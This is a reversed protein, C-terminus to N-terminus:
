YIEAMLLVVNASWGTFPRTGKGKHILGLINDSIPEDDYQEWVYGTRKWEKYVCQIVDNRIKDYLRACRQKTKVDLYRIPELNEYEDNNAYTSETEEPLNAYYYLSSCALYQMNIWVSGRWYPPDHMTNRVKYLPSSKSLSRLGCRKTLLSHNETNSNNTGEILDLIANLRQSNKVLRFFMPFLANYGVHSDVFRWKPSSKRGVVRVSDQMGKLKELRVDDTHIGYDAYMPMKSSSTQSTDNNGDAWHLRDLNEVLMWFHLSYKNKFKTTGPPQLYNHLNNMIRAGHAMWCHLDVHRESADVDFDIARKLISDINSTGDDNVPHSSRPYDDMGSTLTKPNLEKNTIADRGRWRYGIFRKELHFESNTSHKTYNNVAKQTRNFWTYWAKLRPYLKQLTNDIEDFNLKEKNSPMDDKVLRRQKIQRLLLDVTLLLAPPNAARSSQVVFEEPVRSRAESGLIQERPIWGQHNLLDMWHGLIHLQLEVSWRGLMLGHFGDDWLFGRPFQSRSPVATLLGARWYKVADVIDIESVGGNNLNNENDDDRVLSSGYFYGLSGAMNSFTVKAFDLLLSKEATDKMKIPFTNKFKQQFRNSYETHVSSFTNGVLLPSIGKFLASNIHKNKQTYAIDLSYSRFKSTIDKKNNPSITIQLAVFNKLLNPNQHSNDHISYKEDVLMIQSSIGPDKVPQRRIAMSKALCQKLMATNPCWLSSISTNIHVLSASFNNTNNSPIPIISMKFDSLSPTSGTITVLPTGLQDDVGKQIGLSYEEKKLLQEDEGPDIYVYWVLSVSSVSNNTEYIIRTTWDTNSTDTKRKNNPRLFITQLKFGNEKGDNIVQHGYNVADHEVYGYVLNEHANDCMHRISSDISGTRMLNQQTYWMLGAAVSGKGLPEKTRLGFYAGPRYTGWLTPDNNKQIVKPGEYPYNVARTDLYGRYSLVVIATLLVITSFVWTRSLTFKDDDISDRNSESQAKLPRRVETRLIGQRDIIDTTPSFRVTPAPSSIKKKVAVGM